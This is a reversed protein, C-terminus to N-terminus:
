APRRLISITACDCRTATPPPQRHNEKLWDRLSLEGEWRPGSADSSLLADWPKSAAVIHEDEHVTGFACQFGRSSLLLRRQKM